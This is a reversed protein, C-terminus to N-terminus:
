EKEKCDECILNGDEDFVFAENTYVNLACKICLGITSYESM